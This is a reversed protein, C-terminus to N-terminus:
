EAKLSDKGHTLWELNLRALTLKLTKDAYSGSEYLCLITGDPAVALDSYMAAGRTIVRSQAWTKGEDYSIRATLHTRAKVDAPNVVVIRSRGSDAATLRVVSGQCSSEPLAPDFQIPSWTKGGDASRAVARLNRRQRSRMNMYVHNPATEVAMAEDSLDNDLAAGHKWTAGHDDSYMAYSFQVKGWSSPRWSAPGPSTDGWSPILLRGSALQIGHGPGSGVYKWGPAVVDRTIERRPSWTRGDDSTQSVFVQQNNKCFVLVVRGTTRDVVPAPQNISEDGDDQFVILPGFTKGGNTSRKLVLDINDDDRCNTRRAEAFALVIGRPTVVMAPIRFCAYESEGSTFVPQEVLSPPTASWGCSAALWLLVGGLPLPQQFIKKM